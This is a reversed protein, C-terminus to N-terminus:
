TNWMPERTATNARWWELPEPNALELNLRNCLLRAAGEGGPIECWRGGVADYIVWHTSLQPMRVVRYAM